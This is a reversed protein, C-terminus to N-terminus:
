VSRCPTIHWFISATECWRQPFWLDLSHAPTNRQATQSIVNVYFEAYKAVSHGNPVSFVSLYAKLSTFSKKFCLVANAASNLRNCSPAIDARRAGLREGCFPSIASPEFECGEPRCRLRKVVALRVTRHPARCGRSIKQRENRVNTVEASLPEFGVKHWGNSCAQCKYM